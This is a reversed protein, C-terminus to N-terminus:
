EKPEGAQKVITKEDHKSVRKKMKVEIKQAHTKTSASSLTKRRLNILRWEWRGQADQAKEM